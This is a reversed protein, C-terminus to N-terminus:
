ESTFPSLQSMMPLGTRKEPALASPRDTVDTGVWRPIIFVPLGPECCAATANVCMIIYEQHIQLKVQAGSGLRFPPRPTPSGGERRHNPVRRYGNSLTYPNIRLPITHLTLDRGWGTHTHHGTAGATSGSHRIVSNVEKSKQRRVASVTSQRWLHCCLSSCAGPRICFISSSIYM